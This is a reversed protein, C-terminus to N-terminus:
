MYANKDERIKLLRQNLLAMRDKTQQDYDGSDPKSDELQMLESKVAVM